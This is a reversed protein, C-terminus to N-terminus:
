QIVQNIYQAMAQPVISGDAAERVELMIGLSTDAVDSTMTVNGVAGASAIAKYGGKIQAYRNLALAALQTFSNSPTGLSGIINNGGGAILAIAWSNANATTIENCTWTVDSTSDTNTGPTGAISDSQHVGTLAFVLLAMSDENGGTTFNWSTGESGSAIKEYVLLRSWNGSVSATSSLSHPATVTQHGGSSAPSTVLAAIVLDGAQPASSMTATVSAVAPGATVGTATTGSRLDIAM